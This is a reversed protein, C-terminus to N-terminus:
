ILGGTHRAAESGREIKSFRPLVSTKGTKGGVAGSSLQEPIQPVIELFPVEFISQRCQM